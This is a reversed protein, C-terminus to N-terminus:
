RKLFYTPGEHKIFRSYFRRGGSSRFLKSPKEYGTGEILQMRDVGRNGASWLMRARKAETDNLRFVEDGYAFQRFEESPVLVPAAKSIEASETERVQKLAQLAGLREDSKKKLREREAIQIAVAQVVRIKGILPETISNRVSARIREAELDAIQLQLNDNKEEERRIEEDLSNEVPM